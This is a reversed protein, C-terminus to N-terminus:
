PIVVNFAIFINSTALKFMDTNGSLTCYLNFMNLKLMDTYGSLTNYIFNPNLVAASIGHWFKSICITSCNEEETKEYLILQDMLHTFWIGIGTIYILEWMKGFTPLKTSKM